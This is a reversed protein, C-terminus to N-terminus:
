EVTVIEGDSKVTVVEGDVMVQELMPAEVTPAAPAEIKTLVYGLERARRQLQKELRQHM